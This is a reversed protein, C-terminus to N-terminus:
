RGAKTDPTWSPKLGIRSISGPKKGCMDHFMNNMVGFPMCYAEVKSNSIMNM